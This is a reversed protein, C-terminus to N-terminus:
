SVAYANYVTTTASDGHTDTVTSRLGVRGSAPNHVAMTWKGGSLKATAAHWTTGNDTTYWAQVSKVADPLQQVTSDDTGNRQMGLVVTTTSGPTAQNRSNLAGPSFRTIYDRIQQNKAPDAYFHLSLSSTTSLSGSPLSRHGTQTLTYWGAGPIVPHADIEQSPSYTHSYLTKGAHTLKVSGGALVGGAPLTPDAFPNISGFYLQKYWTNPLRGGPGWVARGLTLSTTTGAAYTHSGGYVFDHGHQSIGWQGPPLHASFSNPLDRQFQLTNPGWSCSDGNSSYDFSFMAQGSDPGSRASVKLTTLGSQKLTASVGSPVGGKHTASALWFDGGTTSRPQYTTGYSLEYAKSSTPIVYLDGAEASIGMSAPGNDAACVYASVTHDYGSGPSPSLSVNVPRGQRADFTSKTAGSVTVSHGGVTADEGAAGTFTTVLEYSGNPLSAAKNSEIYRFDNTKTNYVAVQAYVPKGGRDLTTVTLSGKGAASAAPAGALLLPVLVTVASAVTTTRRM